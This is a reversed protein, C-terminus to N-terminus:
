ALAQVRTLAATAVARRAQSTDMLTEGGVIDDILDGYYAAVGDTSTPQGAWTMFERTPGKLIKGDVVPSVAIVPAGAQRIADGCLALIPAISAVPNSPGVIIARATAIAELAAATPQAVDAGAFRVDEIPIEARERVMFEQFGIWRGGSRIQTRVPDDSMPLVTAEIQLQDTLDAIAQTLTGGAKILARRRVGIERDEDGLGFWAEPRSAISDMFAFTDGQLGWGRADIRDALWFCILDPDPSVYADHIEIDDGTNAIVVLRDGVVDLLGRALKAGGTGGALLVIRDSHPRPNEM